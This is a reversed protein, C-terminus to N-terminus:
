PFDYLGNVTTSAVSSSLLGEKKVLYKKNVERGPIQVVQYRQSYNALPKAYNSSRASSSGSFIPRLENAQDNRQTGVSFRYPQVTRTTGRDVGDSVFDVVRGLKRDPYSSKNYITDTAVDYLKLVKRNTENTLSNLITQRVESVGVGGTNFIETSDREAREKLWLSHSLQGSTSGLTNTDIPAHGINWNYKLEKIGKIQAYNPFDRSFIPVKYDIKSRELAHSEIMTRITKSIDVSAPVLQYLIDGISLDIWKYYEIFRELSPTNEVKSFYKERIGTLDRYELRYKNIPDGILNNFETIGAFINLMDESITQYMSKEFAWFLNVPKLDKTFVLDSDGTINITNSSFINEPIQQKSAVHYRKTVIDTDNVLANSVKAPYRITVNPSFASEYVEVEGKIDRVFAEGGGDSSSLQTFDWHFALTDSRQILENVSAYPQNTPNTLGYNFSDKSHETIEEDSIYDYWFRANSVLIDTYAELTGTMNQRRAGIFFRKGNNHINQVSSLPIASSTLKFENKINNEITNVAYLELIYTAGAPVSAFSTSSYNLKELSNYPTKLRVAFNWNEGDYIESFYSSTLVENTLISNFKFYGGRDDQNNKILSVEFNYYNQNKNLTYDTASSTDNVTYGGFLSIETGVPVAYGDVFYEPKKPFYIETEFTLPVVYNPLLATSGNLTNVLFSSGASQNDQDVTNYITAKFNDATSLNVVKKSIVANRKNDKLEFETNNAYINLKVLEDDIGFCRLINRLAKETGKSKYIYTLNNYINKYILNKLDYLNEEFLRKEDRNKILEFITSDSFISTTDLGNSEIISSLFPPPKQGKQTYEVFNFTPLYKIQLYLKDFYSGIIQTLKKLEGTGLEDDETAIWEPLTKFISNGNQSDWEEGLAVLEDLKSIVLSNDSFVIPEKPESSEFLGSEDVASSTSRTNIRYNIIAGNSVRGSYDLVLADKTNIATDNIIGENFRFYVGLNTNSEDTNTGGYVRDFRYRAIDKEEKEVKWFRFEDIYGALQGYGAATTFTAVGKKPTYRYAGINAILGSLNPTAIDSGTLISSQLTGDKYFKLSLKDSSNKVTFAYHHWNYIDNTTFEQREVGDAGVNYTVTFKGTSPVVDILFRSYNASGTNTVSNWLDFVAASSSKVTDSVTSDAKFWFEVTNGSVESIQLNAGRNKNLDYINGDRLTEGSNPGSFVKVYQGISSSLITISSGTKINESGDFSGSNLRLYGTTKPYQNNFVYKELYSLNNKWITIEKESGDYPYTSYVHTVAQKYYEEALGYRAFNSATSFDAEPIYENIEKTKELLFDKSEIEEKLVESKINLVNNSEKFLDKISM